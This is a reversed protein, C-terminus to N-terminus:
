FVLGFVLLLIGNIKNSRDTIENKNQSNVRKLADRFTYIEGITPDNEYFYFEINKHEPFVSKIYDEDLHTKLDRFSLDYHKGLQKYYEEGTLHEICISVIVRDFIRLNDSYKMLWEINKLWISNGKVPFVHYILNTKINSM